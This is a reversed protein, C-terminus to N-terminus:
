FPIEEEYSSVTTKNDSFPDQMDSITDSAQKGDKPDIFITGYNRASDIIKPFAIEGTSIIKNFDETIEINGKDDYFEVPMMFSDIERRTYEGDDTIKVNGVFAQGHCIIKEISDRDECDFESDFRMAMSWNAIKWLARESVWFKETHILGENNDSELDKLVICYLNLCVTGKKSSRTYAVGIPAFLKEGATVKKPKSKQENNNSYQKPKIMM